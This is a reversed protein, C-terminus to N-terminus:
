PVIVAQDLLEGGHLTAADEHSIYDPPPFAPELDWRDGTADMHERIREDFANMVDEFEARDVLNIQEDPDNILNFLWRRDDEERVYLWEPTRIGRRAIPHRDGKGGKSQKILEYMVADRTATDGGDLLSLYSVGQVDNPVDMGCLDLVTPMTDVSIDIMSMPVHGGPFRRPYRVIFPVQMSGRFPTRKLGCYYGHQGFMDGHDSLFIVVTDDAAGHSDLWNLIRGVNHDVNGVMGYYGAIYERIEKETEPELPPKTEGASKSGEMIKLNGGFEREAIEGQVKAQLEPNPVGPPLIIEAPDYVGRWYDPMNQPHHPPGFCIYGFFPRGDGAGAAENLFEILHDTQFDPEYRACHYPQDTDRYFISRLYEHGRNFGVFHDFGLRNEGPPIYGPKPGGALHWKGVYGNRYGADRLITSLFNQAPDIPFHNAYVGTAHAYKGTLFSARFPTCLPYSVYANEFRVGEMALRDLHPTKVVPNGACGMTDYRMQDAYIVLINPRQNQAM